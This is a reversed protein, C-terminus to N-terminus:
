PSLRSLSSIDKREIYTPVMNGTAISHLMTALMVVLTAGQTFFRM